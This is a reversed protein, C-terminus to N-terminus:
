SFLALKVTFLAALIVLAPTLERWRGALLKIAVTRRVPELQEAEYVVGYGGEGLVRTVTFAGMRSGPPLHRFVAPIAGLSTASRPVITADPHLRDDGTGETM